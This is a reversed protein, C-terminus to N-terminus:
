TGTAGTEQSVLLGLPHQSLVIYWHVSSSALDQIQDLLLMQTDLSSAFLVICVFVNM